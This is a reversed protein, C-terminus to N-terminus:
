SPLAAYLLVDGDLAEIANVRLRKLQENVFM